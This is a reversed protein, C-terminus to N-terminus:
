EITHIINELSSIVNDISRGIEDIVEKFESINNLVNSVKELLDRMTNMSQSISSIQSKIEDFYSTSNVLDQFVKSNINMVISTVSKLSNTTMKIRESHKFISDVIPELYDVFKTLEDYLKLVESAFEKTSGVSENISATVRHLSSSKSSRLAEIEVNTAVVSLIGIEDSISSVLRAIKSEISIIDYLVDKASEIKVLLSEFVPLIKSFTDRIENEREIGRSITDLVSDIKSRADDFSSALKSINYEISLINTSLDGITINLSAELAEVRSKRELLLEKVSNLNGLIENLSIKLENQKTKKLELEISLADVFKETNSLKESLSFFKSVVLALLRDSGVYPKNELTYVSYFRALEEFFVFFFTSALAVLIVVNNKTLYFVVFNVFILLLYAYLRWNLLIGRFTFKKLVRVKESDGRLVFVDLLHALSYFVFLSNFLVVAVIVLDFNVMLPLIFFVLNGSFGVFNGYGFIGDKSIISYVFSLAFSLIVSISALVILNSFLRGEPLIIFLVFGVLLPFLSFVLIKPLDRKLKVKQSNYFVVVLMELKLAELV